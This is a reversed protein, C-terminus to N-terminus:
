RQDRSPRGDQIAAWILMALVSVIAVVDVAGLVIPALSDHM